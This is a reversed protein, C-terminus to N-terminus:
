EILSQRIGIAVAQTRHEADLKALIHKVHTKVTEVSLVLRESVERNSCGDALLQLIQRERASLVGTKKPRSLQRLFDPALRQDVYPEGAAVQRLASILTAGDVDKMVFGHAGIDLSEWLLDEEGHATFVIIRVRPTAELIQQIARMGGMGPMRADMLILDPRRRSVLGIAEEGSSAEGVVSIDDEQSLLRRVGERVVSHDDVILVSLPSRRMEQASALRNM